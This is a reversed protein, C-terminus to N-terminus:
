ERHLRLNGVIQNKEGWQGMNCGHISIKDPYSSIPLYLASSESYEWLMLTGSRPKVM